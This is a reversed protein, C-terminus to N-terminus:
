VYDARTHYVKFCHPVCLPTDCDPCWWSTEKRGSKGTAAKAIDACVRCIRTPQAKKETAPIKDPFHRGTLRNAKTPAPAPPQDQFLAGGKNGMAKGIALIFKGMHCYKRLNQPRTTRYIIFANTMSMMFLHFFMKKWWKLQKRKFPYYSIFQDNRDVGTKNKNYDIILDPKTKYVVGDAGRGLVDSTTMKHVTSLALVDRTDKWKLCFLHERRMFVSENKQLKKKVVTQPLQRRNSMCTGVSKTGKEWLFDCLIPSTYFRDMYVTHNKELYRDLLRGYLALITNDESKGTYPEFKLVYGTAADCVVYLKMGYKDPKNKNYVRFRVRGRFGCTGEDITLNESPSLCDPFSSLLHDLYPRLKHMPDHGVTNYPIYTANDNIHFNALIAFFRDRSMLSAAYSTKIFKDTSWYDSLKPKKVYCMHLIISFFNYVEYLKVTTWKAWVSNKKLSNTRRLKDTMVKAYKNTESKFLKVLTETFFLSFVDFPTSNEDINVTIGSTLDDFQPLQPPDDVDTWGLEADTPKQKRPRKNRVPMPQQDSDSEQAEEDLEEGSVNTRPGVFLPSMPRPSAEDTTERSPRTQVATFRGFLSVNPSKRKRKLGIGRSSSPTPHVLPVNAEDSSESDSPKGTVEFDPDADEDDIYEGESGSDYIPDNLKEFLVSSSTNPRDKKASSTASFEDENDMEEDTVDSESLMERIFRVTKEDM